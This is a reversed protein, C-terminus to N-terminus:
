PLDTLDPQGRLRIRILSRLKHIIWHPRQSRRPKPTSARSPAILAPLGFLAVTSGFGISTVLVVSNAGGREAGNQRFIMIESSVSVARGCDVVLRYTGLELNSTAFSFTTSDLDRDVIARPKQQHGHDASSLLKGARAGM